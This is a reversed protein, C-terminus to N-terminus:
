PFDQLYVFSSLLKRAKSNAWIKGNKALKRSYKAIKRRFKAFFYAFNAWFDQSSSNDMGWQVFYWLPDDSSDDPSDEIKKQKLNEFLFSRQTGLFM